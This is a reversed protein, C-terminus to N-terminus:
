EPAAERLFRLKWISNTNLTSRSRCYLVGDQFVKPELQTFTTPSPINPDIALLEQIEVSGDELEVIGFLRGMLDRLHGEVSQAMVVVDRGLDDVAWCYYWMSGNALERVQVKLDNVPSQAALDSRAIRWISQPENSDMNWYVYTETFWISLTRWLQSGEGLTQWNEGNDASRFIRCQNGGDGTGVYVDGTAKDVTVVHIHTASPHNNVPDAVYEDYSYLDLVVDWTESGDPLITGRYVKHRNSSVLDYEGTYVYVIGTSEDEYYDFATQLCSMLEDVCM